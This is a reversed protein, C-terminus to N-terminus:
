RRAERCKMKSMQLNCEELNYNNSTVKWPSFKLLAWKLLECFRNQKHNQFGSIIRKSFLPPKKPSPRSPYRSWICNSYLCYASLHRAQGGVITTAFFKEIPLHSEAQSWQLQSEKYECTSCLATWHTGLSSHHVYKKSSEWLALQLSFFLRTRSIILRILFVWFRSHHHFPQIIRCLAM